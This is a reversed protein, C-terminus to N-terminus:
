VRTHTYKTSKITKTFNPKGDTCKYSGMKYPSGFRFGAMNMSIQVLLETVTSLQKFYKWDEHVNAMKHAQLIDSRNSWLSSSAILSLFSLNLLYTETGETSHRWHMYRWHKSATPQPCSPCVAQLFSLPPTSAHNDTQLSNCVQM